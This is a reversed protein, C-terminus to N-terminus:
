KLAWGGSRLKRRQAVLVPEPRSKWSVHKGGLQFSSNWSVGSSLRCIETKTESSGSRAWTKIESFFTEREISILQILKSWLEAELDWNQSEQARLVPGPRSKWSFYRGSLQFSSNWSIGSSLRCIETKAETSGSSAWTKIELSFTEWKILIIQKLKHWPKAGLTWNLGFLVPWFKIKM